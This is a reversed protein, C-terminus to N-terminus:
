TSAYMKHTHQTVAAVLLSVRFEEITKPFADVNRITDLLSSGAAKKSAAPRARQHFPAPPPPPPPAM